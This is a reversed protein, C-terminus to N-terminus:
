GRYGSPIYLKYSRTGAANRYVTEVFQGPVVEPAPMPRPHLPGRLGPQQLLGHLGPGARRRIRDFLGRVGHLVAQPKEATGTPRPEATHVEPADTEEVSRFEGEIMRPQRGAGAGAREEDRHSGSEPATAGRLLRQLLATSDSLRGARALRTAEIMAKSNLM